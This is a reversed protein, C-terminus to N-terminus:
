RYDDENDDWIAESQYALQLMQDISHLMRILRESEFELFTEYCEDYSLEPYYDTKLRTVCNKIVDEEYHTLIELSNLSGLQKIKSKLVKAGHRMTEESAREIEDLMKQDESKFWGFM